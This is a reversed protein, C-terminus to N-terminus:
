HKHRNGTKYDEPIVEEVTFFEKGPAERFMQRVWKANLAANFLVLHVLLSVLFAVYIALRLKSMLSKGKPEIPAMAPIKSLHGNM